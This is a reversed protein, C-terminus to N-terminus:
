QNWHHLGGCPGQLRSAHSQVPVGLLKLMSNDGIVTKNILM